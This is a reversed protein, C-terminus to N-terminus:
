VRRRGALHGAYALFATMSLECNDRGKFSSLTRRSRVSRELAHGSWYRRRGRFPERLPSVGLRLQPDWHQLRDALNAWPTRAGFSLANHWLYGHIPQGAGIAPPSHVRIYRYYHPWYVWARGTTTHM